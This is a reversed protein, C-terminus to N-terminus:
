DIDYVLNARNGYQDKDATIRDTTDNVDRFLCSASDPEMGETRGALAALALRLAAQLTYGPEVGDPITLETRLSLARDSLHQQAVLLSTTKFLAKYLGEASNAGASLTYEYLGGGVETVAGAPVILVGLHNRVDVTVTLGEVGVGATDRFLCGFTIPDDVRVSM